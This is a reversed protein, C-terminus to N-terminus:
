SRGLPARKSAAIHAIADDLARVAEAARAHVYNRESADYSQHGLIAPVHGIQGPAREAVTTAIIHRFLHPGMSVGFRQLSRRRVVLTVGGKTLPGGRSSLWLSDSTSRGDTRAALVPRFRALYRHIQRDVPTTDCSYPRGSKMEAGTFCLRFLKGSRQLHRDLEISALNKVRVPRHILLALILGDRFEVASKLPARDPLEAARMLDHALDLIDAPNQSRAHHSRVPLGAASVRDAARAIISSDFHPALVRLMAALGRLRTACTSDSYEAWRMASLFDRLTELEARDEPASLPDLRGTRELWALWVGYSYVVLARTAPRWASARGSGGPQLPDGRLARQWMTRDRLPWRELPIPAVLKAIQSV